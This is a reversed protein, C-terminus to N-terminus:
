PIASAFMGSVDWLVVNTVKGLSECEERVDEKLDLLLSPDEDLEALTFMRRLCVQRISTRAITMGPVSSAKGELDSDSDGSDWDTLKSFFISMLMLSFLNRM